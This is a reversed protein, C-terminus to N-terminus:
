IKNYNSEIHLKNPNPYNKDRFEQISKHYEKRIDSVMNTEKNITLNNNHIRRKFLVENVKFTKNYKNEYRGRLESDAACRWPYYGNLKLFIDRKILIVGEGYNKSNTRVRNGFETFMFNIYDYKNSYYSLIPIANENIIDDSDFFLIHDYKSLQSLTNKIIYPGVNKNFFYCGIDSYRSNDIIHQKTKECNDIGILIEYKINNKISNKISDICEDIYEVNDYTPIIISLNNFNRIKSVHNYLDLTNEKIISYKIYKLSNLRRVTNTIETTDFLVEESPKLKINDIVIDSNYYRNKDSLINTTNKIILPM